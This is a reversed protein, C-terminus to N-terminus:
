PWEMMRDVLLKHWIIVLDYYIGHIQLSDALHPIIFFYEYKQCCFFITM